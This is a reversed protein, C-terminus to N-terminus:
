LWEENKFYFRIIARHKYILKLCIWTQLDNRKGNANQASQETRRIHYRKHRNIYRHTHTLKAIANRSVVLSANSVSGEWKICKRRDWDSFCKLCCFLHSMARKNKWWNKYQDLTRKLFPFEIIVIQHFSVPAQKSSCTVMSRVCMWMCISSFHTSNKRMGAGVFKKKRQRLLILVLTM